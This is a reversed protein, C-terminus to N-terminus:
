FLWGELVQMVTQIWGWSGNLEAILADPGLLHRFRGSYLAAAINEGILGAHAAHNLGSTLLGQRFGSWFDGGSLSSGVGGSLAGVGIMGFNGVGLGYM